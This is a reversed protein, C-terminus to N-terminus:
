RRRKFSHGSHSRLHKTSRYQESHSRVRGTFKSPPHWGEVSDTADDDGSCHLASLVQVMGLVSGFERLSSRHHSPKLAPCICFGTACNGSSGQGCKRYPSDGHAILCSHHQKFRTVLASRSVRTARSGNELGWFWISTKGFEERLSEVYSSSFGGWGDDNGSFIQLGALQDCEEVFPRIDRDLLDFGKDLDHFLEQGASWDEFPM